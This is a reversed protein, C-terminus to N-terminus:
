VAYRLNVKSHSRFNYIKEILLKYQEMSQCHTLTSPQLKLKHLFDEHKFVPNKFLVIMVRVFSIRNYGEYYDKYEIIKGANEYSLKLDPIRFKGAEFPPVQIKNSSKGTPSIFAGRPIRGTSNSLIVEASGINFSPYNSMFEKLRLYPELGLACYSNLYDIKRWTHNNSNLVQIERLGYGNSEIYYVPLSLRKAAELRHQGDIVEFKSNVLIPSVLYEDEFAMMLRRVHAEDVPRNGVMTKFMVYDNTEKITKM